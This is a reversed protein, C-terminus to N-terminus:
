KKVNFVQAIDDDVHYHGFSSYSILYIRGNIDSVLIHQHDVIKRINLDKDYRLIVEVKIYEQMYDELYKHQKKNLIINGEKDLSKDNDLEIPIDLQHINFISRYNRIFGNEKLLNELTDSYGIIFDSPNNKKIDALTKDFEEKTKKPICPMITNMTDDVYLSVSFTYVIKDFQFFEDLQRSQANVSTLCDGVYTKTMGSSFMNKTVSMVNQRIILSPKKKNNGIETVKNVCAYVDPIEKGQMNDSTIILNLFADPNLKVWGLDYLSDEKISYVSKSNISKMIIMGDKVDTVRVTVLEDGEYKYYKTGNIITAM